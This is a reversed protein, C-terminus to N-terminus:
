KSPPPTPIPPTVQPIPTPTPLPSVLVKKVAQFGSQVNGWICSAMEQASTLISSKYSNLIPQMVGMGYRLLGLRWTGVVGGTVAGISFIKLGNVTNTTPHYATIGPLTQVDSVIDIWLDRMVSLVWDEIANKSVDVLQIESPLTPMLVCRTKSPQNGDVSHIIGISGTYLKMPVKGNRSAAIDMLLERLGTDNMLTQEMVEWKTWDWNLVNSAIKWVSYPMNPSKMVFETLSTITLGEDVPKTKIFGTKNAGRTKFGPINGYWQNSSSCLWASDIELVHKKDYSIYESLRRKWTEYEPGIIEVSTVYRCPQNAVNDTVIANSPSPSGFYTGGPQMAPVRACGMDVLGGVQSEIATYPRKDGKFSLQTSGIPVVVRGDASVVKDIYPQGFM